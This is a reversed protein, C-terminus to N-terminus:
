IIKYSICTITPRETKEIHINTIDRDIDAFYRENNEFLKM